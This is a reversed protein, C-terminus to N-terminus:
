RHVRNLNLPNNLNMFYFDNFQNRTSSECDIFPKDLVITVRVARKYVVGM